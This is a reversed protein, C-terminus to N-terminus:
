QQVLVVNDFCMSAGYNLTVNFVLGGATDGASSTITNSYLQLASSAAVSNTASWLETYPAEVHGIKVQVSIPAASASAMYAMTYTLGPTIVFADSPTPPYGLSFSLYYSSSLNYICYGGGTFDYAGYEGANLTLNWYEGMKTFDGNKILNTPVSGGAGTSGSAGAASGGSGAITGGTGAITGGSGSAGGVGITGAAGGAGGNGTAPNVCLESFCVLGPNCTQNGYCACTESGAPCPPPKTSSGSSGCGVLLAAAAFL